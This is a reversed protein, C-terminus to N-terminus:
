NRWQDYKHMSETSMSLTIRLPAAATTAAICVRAVLVGGMPEMSEGSEDNTMGESTWELSLVQTDYTKDYPWSDCLM